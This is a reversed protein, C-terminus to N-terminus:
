DARLVAIPDVRVARLVPGISALLAAAGLVAAVAIWVRPDLAAVRLLDRWTISTVWLTGVIGGVVGMVVLPLDRGIAVAALRRPNAGLAMRIGLETLRLTCSQSLAAYVGAFAMLLALVTIAGIVTVATNPGAFRDDYTQGLTTVPEMAINPSAHAVASSLSAIPLPAAHPKVLVYVSQPWDRAGVIWAVPRDVVKEDQIGLASAPRFPDAAVGIVPLWDAVPSSPIRARWEEGAADSWCKQAGLASVVLAPGGSASFSAGRELPLGLADFYTPTVLAVAARCETSGNPSATQMSASTEGGPLATALAVTEVDGRRAIEDVVRAYIAGRAPAALDASTVLRAVQVSGDVAPRLIREIEDFARIFLACVVVLVVALGVQLVVLVDGIGYGFRPVLLRRFGGAVIPALNRRWVSVAPALATAFLAMLSAIATVAVAAYGVHISGALAPARSEVELRFLMMGWAALMAGAAVGALGFVLAEAASLRALQVPTAGLASRIALERQRALTRIIMMNGVNACAILLIALAPAVLGEFAPVIRIKNEQPISRLLSRSTRATAAAGTAGRQILVDFEAQADVVSKGAVLRGAIDIPVPLRPDFVLPLWVDVGATPLWFGAPMVGVIERPEVDVALRQGIVSPDAHFRERWIRDSIIATDPREFDDAVFARGIRPAVGALAFYGGSVRLTELTQGDAGGVIAERGTWATLSTLTRSADKWAVFDASSPERHGAPRTDDARWVRIVTEPSKVPPFNYIVVAFFSGLVTAVAIASALISVVALAAAPRKRFSRVSWRLDLWLANM